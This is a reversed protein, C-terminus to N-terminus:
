SNEARMRDIALKEIEWWKLAEEETWTHGCGDSACEHDRGEHDKDLGCACGDHLSWCREDVLAQLRRQRELEEEPM